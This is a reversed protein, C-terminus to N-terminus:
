NLGQQPIIFCLPYSLKGPLPKNVTQPDLIIAKNIVTLIYMLALVPHAVYMYFTYCIFSGLTSLLMALYIILVNSKKLLITKVLAILPISEFTLIAVLFIFQVIIKPLTRLGMTKSLNEVKTENTDALLQMFIVPIIPLQGLAMSMFVNVTNLSADNSFDPTYTPQITLDFIGVGDYQSLIHESASSMVHLMSNNM